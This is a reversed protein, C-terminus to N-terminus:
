KVADGGQIVITSNVAGELEYNEVVGGPWTIEVSRVSNAEGLGFHAAPAHQALFSDGTVIWRTQRGGLNDTMVVKAGNPSFGAGPSERLQVKFSRKNTGTDIQNALLHLNSGTGKGLFLSEGVLLDPRGDGDLDDSVVSRADFSLAAGFLAASDLFREEEPKQNLFLVNKEYGNWSIKNTNLDL